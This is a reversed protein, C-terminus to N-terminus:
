KAFVIYGRQGLEKFFQQLSLEAERPVLKFEQALSRAITEFTTAGDIMRWVHTGIPDLVVRREEPVQTFILVVRTKWDKGRRITLVVQGNEESWELLPNRVPKLALLDRRTPATKGKAATKAAKKREDKTKRTSPVPAASVKLKSSAKPEQSSKPEGAQKQNKTRQNKM